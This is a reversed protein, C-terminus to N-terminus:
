GATGPPDPSRDGGRRGPGYLDRMLAKLDVVVSGAAPRAAHAGTGSAEQSGIPPAAAPAVDRSNEVVAAVTEARTREEVADRDARAADDAKRKAENRADSADHRADDAEQQASEVASRHVERGFLWGVATFVVAEVAGFLYVRRQWVESDKTGAAVVMIGVLVGFGVILLVAVLFQWSWRAGDPRGRRVRPPKQETM